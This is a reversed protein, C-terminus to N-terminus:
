FERQAFVLIAIALLMVCYLLSYIASTTLASFDPLAQVGYVVDNKLNFRSLDPVILYIAQTLRKMGFNDSQHGLELVKQSINGMLYVAFTLATALLTSTFISLTIAVATILSLELLLFLSFIMVSALSYSIKGYELFGIFIGTMLFILTGLVSSLGLYKGIIFESRSVPKAVLMLITRKDIEKNVMGTGVFVAVILGLVNILALGFDPFIKNETTAAFEPLLIFVISLIVIYFGIIYFIRDRVVEKFVNKSLVFIVFQNM